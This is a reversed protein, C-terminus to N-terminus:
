FLESIGINKCDEPQVLPGNTEMEPGQIDDVDVVYVDDEDESSSDLVVVQMVSKLDKWSKVDAAATNEQQLVEQKCEKDQVEDKLIDKRRKEEITELRLKEIFSRMKKPPEFFRTNRSQKRKRRRDIGNKNSYFKEGEGSTCEMPENGAKVPPSVSMCEIVGDNDDDGDVKEDKPAVEVAQDHIEDEVRLPIIDNNSVPQSEFHRQGLAVPASHYQMECRRKRRKYDPRRYYPRTQHHWLPRQGRPIRSHQPVPALAPMGYMRNHEWAPNGLVSLMTAPQHFVTQLEYAGPFPSQYQQNMFLGSLPFASNNWVGAAGFMNGGGGFNYTPEQIWPNIQGATQLPQSDQWRHARNNPLGATPKGGIGPASLYFKHIYYDDKQPCVNQPLLNKDPVRVHIIFKGDISPISDLIRMREDEWLLGPRIDEDELDVVEIESRRTCAAEDQKVYSPGQKGTEESIDIISPTIEVEDHKLHINTVKGRGFCAMDNSLQRSGLGLKSNQTSSSPTVNALVDSQVDVVYPKTATTNKQLVQIENKVASTKVSNQYSKRQRFRSVYRVSASHNVEVIENDADDKVDVVSVIEVEDNNETLTKNQNGCRRITASSETKLDPHSTQSSDSIDVIDSYDTIGKEHNQTVNQEDTSQKKGGEHRTHQLETENRHESCIEKQSVDVLTSSDEDVITVDIIKSSTPEVATVSESTYNDYKNKGETYSSIENASNTEKSSEGDQCCVASDSKELSSATMTEVGVATIGCSEATIGSIIDRNSSESSVGISQRQSKASSVGNGEVDEKNVGSRSDPVTAMVQLDSRFNQNDVSIYDRKCSSDTGLSSQTQSDKEEVSTKDKVIKIAEEGSEVENVTSIEKRGPETRVTMKSEVPNSKINDSKSSSRSVSKEISWSIKFSEDIDVNEITEVDIIEQDVAKVDNQVDESRHSPKVVGVSAKTDISRDETIIEQVSTNEKM